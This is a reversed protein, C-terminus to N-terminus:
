SSSPKGEVPGGQSHILHQRRTMGIANSAMLITSTIKKGDSFLVKKCMQTNSATWVPLKTASLSVQGELLYQAATPCSQGSDQSVAM